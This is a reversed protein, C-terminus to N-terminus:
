DGPLCAGAKPHTQTPPGPGPVAHTKFTSRLRDIKGLRPPPYTYPRLQGNLPVLAEARTYRRAVVTGPDCVGPQPRGESNDYNMHGTAGSALLICIIRHPYYLPAPPYRPFGRRLRVPMNLTRSAGVRRRKCASDIPAYPPAAHTHQARTRALATISRTCMARDRWPAVGVRM